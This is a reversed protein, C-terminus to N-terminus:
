IGSYGKRRRNRLWMDGGQDAREKDEPFPSAGM